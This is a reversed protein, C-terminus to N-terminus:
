LVTHPLFVFRSLTLTVCLLLLLQFIFFTQLFLTNRIWEETGENLSPSPL